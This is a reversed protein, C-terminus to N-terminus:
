AARDIDRLFRPCAKYLALCESPQFGAGSGALAVRRSGFSQFGGKLIHLPGISGASNTIAEGLILGNKYVSYGSPDTRSALTLGIPSSVALKRPNMNNLRVEVDGDSNAANIYAGRSEDSTFSGIDRIFDGYERSVAWSFLTADAEQYKTSGSHIDLGTDVFDGGGFSQTGCGPAL